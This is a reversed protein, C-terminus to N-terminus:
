LRGWLKLEVARAAGDRSLELRLTAGPRAAAFRERFVPLSRVPALPAAPEGGAAGAATVAEGAELGAASAPSGPRVARVRVAIGGAPGEVEELDLGAYAAFAEVSDSFLGQEPLIWPKLDDVPIATGLWRSRSYNLCLIGLLAGSGDVLPGGDMGNNLHASTEIVRGSYKSESLTPGVTYLGSVIGEGVSVQDDSEISRFANGLSLAPEGVRAASSDGLVVHPLDARPAKAQIRILSLEKEENQLVSKAPLIEGGRLYVRINWAEKPVVTVSTLVLGKPDIITGTGFYSETLGRRATIGVVAPAVREYVAAAPSTRAESATLAPGLLTGLTALLAALPRAPKLM